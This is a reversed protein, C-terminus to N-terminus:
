KGAALSSYGCFTWVPRRCAHSLILDPGVMGGVICVDAEEIHREESLRPDAAAAASFLRHQWSLARCLHKQNQPGSPRLSGALRAYRCSLSTFM